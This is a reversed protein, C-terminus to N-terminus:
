GQHEFNVFRGNYKKKTWSPLDFKKARTLEDLKTFFIKMYSGGKTKYKINARKLEDEIEVNKKRMFAYYNNEIEDISPTNNPVLLVHTVEDGEDYGKSKKFVIAKM